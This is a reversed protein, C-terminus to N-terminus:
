VLEVEIKKGAADLKTIRFSRIQGTEMEGPKASGAVNGSKWRAQLMSSLSSLDAKGGSPASAASEQKATKIRCEAQIGEAVEVRATAGSVKVVRGTVADGVKHEALYEDISTPLLQKMGLKVRRREQDIELVQAKV